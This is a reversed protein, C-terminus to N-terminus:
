SAADRPGRIAIGYGHDGTPIARYLEMDDVEDVLEGWLQIVGPEVTIDHIFTVSHDSTMPVYTDWDHRAGEYTHDGDIVLVDPRFGHADVIGGLIKPADPDASGRPLEIPYYHVGLEGCLDNMKMALLTRGNGPVDITVYVEPRMKALKTGFGGYLTGIEVIFRARSLESQIVEQVIRVEQNGTARLHNEVWDLYPHTM